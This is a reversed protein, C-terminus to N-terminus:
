GGRGIRIAGDIALGVGPVVHGKQLRAPACRTLDPQPPPEQAQAPDPRSPPHELHPRPGAHKGALRGGEHAATAADDAHVRAPDADRRRPAECALLPEVAADIKAHPVAGAQAEGRVVEVARERHGHEQVHRVGRGDHALQRADRLRAADHAHLVLVQAREHEVM